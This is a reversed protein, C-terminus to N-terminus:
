PVVRPRNHQRVAELGLLRHLVVVSLYLNCHVMRVGVVANARGQTLFPFECSTTKKSM